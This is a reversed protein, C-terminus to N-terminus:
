LARALVILAYTLFAIWGITFLATRAWFRGFGSIHVVAHVLQAYFYVQACAVTGPTSIGVAQAILVVAVLQAFNEVANVGRGSRHLRM